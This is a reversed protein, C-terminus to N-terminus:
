KKLGKYELGLEKCVNYLAKHAEKSTTHINNRSTSFYVVSDLETLNETSVYYFSTDLYNQYHKNAKRVNYVFLLIDGGNLIREKASSILRIINRVTSYSVARMLEKGDLILRYQNDQPYLYHLDSIFDDIIQEKEEVGKNLEKLTKYVTYFTSVLEDKEVTFLAAQNYEGTIPDRGSLFQERAKKLWISPDSEIIPFKYDDDKFYKRESEQSSDYPFTIEKRSYSGTFGIFDSYTPTPTYHILGDINYATDDKRKFISGCRKNQALCEHDYNHYIWEDDEGTLPTFATFTMSRNVSWLVENRIDLPIDKVVEWIPSFLENNELEKPDKMWHKFMSSFVGMSGGSHGEDSIIALIQKTYPLSRSFDKGSLKVENELFSIYSM